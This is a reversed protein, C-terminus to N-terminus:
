DEEMGEDEEDVADHRFLALTMAAMYAELEDPNEAEDSERDSM